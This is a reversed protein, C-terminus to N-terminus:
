GAAASPRAREGRDEAAPRKKPPPALVQLFAAAAPSLHGDEPYAISVQLALSEDVLPIVALRGEAVQKEIASRVLFAVGEDKEVLEKVCDSNSTQLVVRPSLGHRELCRQVLGHLTSGEERMLIPWGELERVAVGESREALASRPSAFLCVEEERFPVFTLGRVPEAVALVGLESRGDVLRQCVEASSGEDLNVQIEPYAERFRCVYRPMVYRAYTKTTSIKLLGRKLERTEALVWELEAELGFIRQAYDLLLAGAETLVLHRGPGRKQFLSLGLSEELGKVQATVAPQTVCLHRAAQTFSELRAAEYFMRLQNLNMM